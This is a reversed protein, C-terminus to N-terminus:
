KVLKYLFYNSNILTGGVIIFQNLMVVIATKTIKLSEQIVYQKFARLKVYGHDQKLCFIIGEQKTMSIFIIGEQKTVQSQRSGMKQSYSAQKECSSIPSALNTACLINKSLGQFMGGRQKLFQTATRKLSLLEILTRM